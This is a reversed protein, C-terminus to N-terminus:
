PKGTLANAIRVLDDRQQELSPQMLATQVAQEYDGNVAYALAVRNLHGCRLWPEQVQSAYDRARSLFHTALTQAGAQHLSRVPYLLPIDEHTRQFEAVALNIFRRAADEDGARYRAAAWELLGLVRLEPQGVRLVVWEVEEQLGAEVGAQIMAWFWLNTYPGLAARKRTFRKVQQQLNLRVGFVIVREMFFRKALETQGARHLARLVYADALPDEDQVARHALEYGERTKGQQILAIALYPKLANRAKPPLANALAPLRHAENQQLYLQGLRRAAAPHYLVPLGGVLDAVQELSARLLTQEVLVSMAELYIDPHAPIASQKLLKQAAEFRQRALEAEGAQQYIAGIRALALARTERARISGAEHLARRLDSKQAHWLARYLRVLERSKENESYAPLRNLLHPLDYKLCVEALMRVQMGNLPTLAARQSPLWQTWWESLPSFGKSRALSQRILWEARESERMQAFRQADFREIRIANRTTWWVGVGGLTLIITLLWVGRRM